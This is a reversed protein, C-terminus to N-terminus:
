GKWKLICDTCMKEELIGEVCLLLLLLLLSKSIEGSLGIFQLACRHGSALVIVGEAVELGREGVAGILGENDSLKM